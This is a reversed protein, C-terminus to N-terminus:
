VARLWGNGAYGNCPDDDHRLAGADVKPWQGIIHRLGQEVARWCGTGTVAEATATTDWWM